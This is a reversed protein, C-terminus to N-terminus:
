VVLFIDLARSLLPQTILEHRYNIKKSNDSVKVYSENKIMIMVIIGIINFGV